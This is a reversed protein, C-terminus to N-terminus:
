QLRRGTWSFFADSLLQRDDPKLHEFTAEHKANPAILKVLNENSGFDFAGVTWPDLEGYIFIIDDASNKVWQDIDLMTQPNFTATNEFDFFADLPELLDDIHATPYGSEGIETVTQYYYPRWFGVGWNTYDPVIDVIGTLHEFFVETTSIIDPIDDCDLNTSRWFSYSYEIVAHKLVMEKPYTYHFNTEYNTNIYDTYDDLLPPLSDLKQLIARQFDKVKQRCEGTGVENFFGNIYRPDERAFLLPAVIPVTGVVDDPYFRRHYVATSGGKSRGSSVWPTEYIKKLAVVIRHIDDAAQRVTLYNSDHPSDWSFSSPVSQGNYRHEVSIQNSLSLSALKRTKFETRAYGETELVVPADLDVHGLFIKQEFKSGGPDQHDVPQMFRIEFLRNFHDVTALETVAAGDLSKLRTLIDVPDEPISDETKNCCILLFIVGVLGLHKFTYKM